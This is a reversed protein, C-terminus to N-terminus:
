GHARSTGTWSSTGIRKARTARAAAAESVDVQCSGIGHPVQSLDKDFVEVIAGAEALVAATAAGIGSDGGTVIAVLRDLRMVNAPENCTAFQPGDRHGCTGRSEGDLAAGSAATHRCYVILAGPVICM